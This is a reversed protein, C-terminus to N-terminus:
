SKGYEWYEKISDTVLIENESQGQGLAIWIEKCDNCTFCLVEESSAPPRRYDKMMAAKCTPCILVNQTLVTIM